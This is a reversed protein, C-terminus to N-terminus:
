SQKALIHEMDYERHGYNVSLDSIIDFEQNENIRCEM